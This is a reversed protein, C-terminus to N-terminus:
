LDRSRSQHLSTARGDSLDHWWGEGCNWSKMLRTKVISSLLLSQWEDVARRYGYRRFEYWWVGYAVVAALWCITSIICWNWHAFGNLHFNLVFSLAVRTWLIELMQIFITCDLAM